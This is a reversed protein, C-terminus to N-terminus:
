SVQSYFFQQCFVEGKLLVAYLSLLSFGSLFVEFSVQTTKISGLLSGGLGAEARLMYNLGRLPFGLLFCLTFTMGKDHKRMWVRLCSSGVGFSFRVMVVSSGSERHVDGYLCM